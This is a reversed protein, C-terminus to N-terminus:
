KEQNVTLAEDERELATKLEWDLSEKMEKYYYSEGNPLEAIRKEVWEIIEKLVESEKM